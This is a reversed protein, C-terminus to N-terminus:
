IKLEHVLFGAIGHCSCFQLTGSQQWMPARRTNYYRVSEMSNHLHVNIFELDSNLAAKWFQKGPPRQNKKGFIKMKM